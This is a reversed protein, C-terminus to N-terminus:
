DKNLPLTDAGAGPKPKQLSSFQERKGGMRAARLRSLHVLGQHGHKNAGMGANHSPCLAPPQNHRRRWYYSPERFLGVSM